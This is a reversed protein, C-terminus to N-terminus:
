NNFINIDPKGDQSCKTIPPGLNTISGHIKIVRYGWESPCPWTVRVTKGSECTYDAYSNQNVISYYAPGAVTCHNFCSDAHVDISFGPNCRNVMCRSWTQLEKDWVQHGSAANVVSSVCPKYKSQCTGNIVESSASKCGSLKCASWSKGDFNQSGLANVDPLDCARTTPTCIKTGQDLIFGTRCTVAECTSWKNDVWKTQGTGNSMACAQISSRCYTRTEPDIHEGAPCGCVGDTSILNGPCKVTIRFSRTIERDAGKATVSYLGSDSLKASTISLGYSNTLKPLNTTDRSWLLTPTPVGRIRPLLSVSFSAGVTFTSDPPQDFELPKISASGAVAFGPHRLSGSQNILVPTYIGENKRNFDRLVLNWKGGWEPIETGNFLWIIDPRPKSNSDVKLRLVDGYLVSINRVGSTSFLSWFSLRESSVVEGPWPELVAFPYQRVGGNKRLELSYRGFDAKSVSPIILQPRNGDQIPKGNLYWQFSFTSLESIKIPELKLRSLSDIPKSSPEEGASALLQPSFLVKDGLFAHCCSDDTEVEVSSLVGMIEENFAQVTGTSQLTKFGSGQCNQFFIMLLIGAGTLSWIIKARLAISTGISKLFIM